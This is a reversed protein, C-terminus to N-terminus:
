SWDARLHSCISVAPHLWGAPAQWPRCLQLRVSCLRHGERPLEKDALAQSGAKPQGFCQLQKRGLGSQRSVSVQPQTQSETWSARPTVRGKRSGAAGAARASRQPWHKSTSAPLQSTGPALAGPCKLCRLGERGGPGPAASLTMSPASCHLGEDTCQERPIQKYVTDNHAPHLGQGGTCITAHFCNIKQLATFPFM